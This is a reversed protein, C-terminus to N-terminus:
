KARIRSLSVPTIGLYSAIQIQSIRNELGPYENRFDFYREEATRTLLSKERNSIRKLERESIAYAFKNVWNKTRILNSFEMADFEYIITSELAQYNILHKGNANRTFAPSTVDNDMFFVVNVDGQKPTLYYGRLIGKEIYIEKYYHQGESVLIENKQLTRVHLLEEVLHWEDQPIISFKEFYKRFRDM